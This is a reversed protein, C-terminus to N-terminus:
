RRNHTMKRLHVNRLINIDTAGRPPLSVTELGFILITIGALALSIYDLLGLPQHMSIYGVAYALALSLGLLMLKILHHIHRGALIYLLLLIIVGARVYNVQSSSSAFWMYISNPSLRSTLFLFGVSLSSLLALIKTM